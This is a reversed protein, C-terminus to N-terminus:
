NVFSIDKWAFFKVKSLMSGLVGTNPANDSSQESSSGFLCDRQLPGPDLEAPHINLRDVLQSADQTDRLDQPRAVATSSWFNAVLSSASCFNSCLVESIAGTWANRHTPDAPCDIQRFYVMDLDEICLAYRRCVNVSSSISSEFVRQFMVGHMMGSSM